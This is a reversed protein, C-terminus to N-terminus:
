DFKFTCTRLLSTQHNTTKSPSSTLPVRYGQELLRAGAQFRIKKNERYISVSRSGQFEGVLPEPVDDILEDVLHRSLRLKLRLYTIGTTM